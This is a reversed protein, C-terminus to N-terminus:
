RADAESFPRVAVEVGMLDGRLAWASGGTGSDQVGLDLVDADTALRGTTPTRDLQHAYVRYRLVQPRTVGTPDGGTEGVTVARARKAATGVQAVRGGAM